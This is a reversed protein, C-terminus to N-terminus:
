LLLGQLKELRELYAKAKSESHWPAISDGFLGREHPPSVITQIEKTGLQVHLNDFEEYIAYPGSAPVNSGVPKYYRNVLIQTGPISTDHIVYPLDRHMTQYTHENVSFSSKALLSSLWQVAHNVAAKASSHSRSLDELEVRKMLTGKTIGLM